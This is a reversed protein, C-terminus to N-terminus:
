SARMQGRAGARGAISAAALRRGERDLTFVDDLDGPAKALGAREAAELTEEVLAVIDLYGIKGDLFAEVAIENAANLINTAAPGTELAQRALGLGPFRVADPAAFSLGGLAALDLPQYSFPRREPWWLCNAIPVRMDPVSMQALMSGDRYQVLGHVISQPHVLVDIQDSGLGFLYHAEIVELGKNMLTSSDVSVKQGMDWNPHAVAQDPTATALQDPSWDRFPGGSATLIIREVMSPRDSDLVQFIANHESDVPLLRVGHRAVAEVFLPGASVLCEKNALAIDAGAEIAAMTPALGAAGVIAAVTLDVPRGAAEVLANRGAAAEIGTGALAERLPALADPDAVVACKAGLRRAIEALEAANRDATVVEVEFGDDAAQLVDVTSTGISGTAGLLSIRRPGGRTGARSM